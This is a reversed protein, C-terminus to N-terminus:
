GPFILESLKLHVQHANSLFVRTGLQYLLRNLHNNRPPLLVFLHPGLPAVLDHIPHGDM